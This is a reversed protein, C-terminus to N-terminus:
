LFNQHNAWRLNYTNSYTNRQQHQSSHLTEDAQEFLDCVVINSSLQAVGMAQLKNSIIELQITLLKNSALLAEHTDLDIM